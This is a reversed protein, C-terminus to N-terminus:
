YFIQGLLTFLVTFVWQAVSAIVGSGASVLLILFIMSYLPYAEMYDSAKRWTLKLLRYGDLPYIPLLNFVALGINIFTFQLWFMNMLDINNLFIDTFAIGGIRSYALIVIMGVLALLINMAPGALSTM